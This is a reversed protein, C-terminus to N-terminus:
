RAKTLVRDLVQSAESARQGASGSDRSVAAGVAAVVYSKLSMRKSAACLKALWYLDDPFDRLNLPRGKMGKKDSMYRM